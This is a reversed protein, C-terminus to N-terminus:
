NMSAFKICVPMDLQIDFGTNELLGTQQDVKFVQIRDSDRNAVLLLKGNPTLAFNRPHIGTDQYGTKTLTGDNQNVSFIAIGDGKLRNSAYVFKGDPSIHIDASGKADLSDAKVTQKEALDGNSSNYDFVVVDGSLETILYAYKGNPHFVLHRPGSGAKTSFSEPSGTTLFEKGTANVDFKHIKDTGLDDAFLYKYNPSFQVCHLHPQTQRDKDIGKGTFSIVKPSPNLGGKDDVTFATISGGLYNATVVHKGTQDINIYCPAGGRTLQKNIFTLKGDKKDFSFANAASTEGEDETVAYVYKESPDLTLYSPNEVHIESVYSSTGTVTDLKYVYIGKSEGSTYTGVLMYMQNLDPDSKAAQTTSKNSCGALLLASVSMSIIQKLMNKTNQTKVM